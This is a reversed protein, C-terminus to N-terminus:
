EVEIRAQSGEQKNEVVIRAPIRDKLEDVHSIVGILRGTAQLDMLTEIAMELSDADLTGFGEDIFLTDVHVGGQQNQIVDSLGLALALSAKFTEGGSLTKVSRRAGAYRDFVDIELGEPGAGKTRNERRVMEYRGNAMTEFRQNAAFLVEEFYISLVYREFSIYNTKTSGNAIEALEEYIALPKHIKQSETYNAKIEDFSSTHKSNQAILADRENECREKQDRIDLLNAEVEALPRRDDQKELRENTQKLQRANYLREDDYYKIAEQYEKEEDSELLYESFGEVFEYQNMLDDLINKQKSKATKEKQLQEELMSISTETQAQKSLKETYTNRIDEAEKQVKKIKNQHQEIIEQVAKPSEFRLEQNIDNISAKLEAIKELINAEKSKVQTLHLQNEQSDTQADELAKRWTNEQSLKEELNELTKTRETLEEILISEQKEVSALIDTYEGDVEALWEEQEKIQNAKQKMAAAIETHVTKDKDRTQEYAELEEETITGANTNTPNPHHLSGCVPCAKDDELEGVLVGALNGFYHRRAQEYEQQSKSYRKSCTENEKLLETLEQQLKIIKELAEKKSKLKIHTEKLDEQKKQENNLDDRWTQIKKIDATLSKIQEVFKEAATEFDKIEKHTLKLTDHKAKLDKTKKELEEFKEREAELSTIEKRIM